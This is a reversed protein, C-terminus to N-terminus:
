FRSFIDTKDYIHAEAIYILTKLYYHMKTQVCYMFKIIIQICKISTSLLASHSNQRFGEM